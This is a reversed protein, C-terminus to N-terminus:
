WNRVSTISLISILMLAALLIPINGFDRIFQSKSRKMLVGIVLFLIMGLLAYLLKVKKTENAGDKEQTVEDVIEVTRTEGTLPFALATEISSAFCFTVVLLMFFRNGMIRGKGPKVPFFTM